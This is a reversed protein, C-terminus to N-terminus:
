IVPISLWKTCNTSVATSLYLSLYLYQSLSLQNILYTQKCSFNDPSFHSSVTRYIYNLSHIFLVSVQYTCYMLYCVHVWQHVSVSLYTPATIRLADITACTSLYACLYTSLYFPLVPPYPLNFTILVSNPLHAVLRSSEFASLYFLAAVHLVTLSCQYTSVYISLIM